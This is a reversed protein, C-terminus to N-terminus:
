GLVINSSAFGKKEWAKEIREKTDTFICLGSRQASDEFWRSFSNRIESDDAECAAIFAPWILRLSGYGMGADSADFRLLCDCVGVVHKQLMGADLDYVTRYFYVVLAHQMTDSLTDLLIVSQEHQLRAREHYANGQDLWRSSSYIGGLSLASTALTGFFACLSANDVDEGLTLAALCSKLHPLYLVHWPTKSHRYPTLGRLVTTACHKLLFVADQPVNNELSLSIPGSSPTSSSCSPSDNPAFRSMQLGSSPPASVPPHQTTSAPGRDTTDWPDVTTDWWEPIELHGAMDLLDVMPMGDLVKLWDSMSCPPTQYGSLRARRGSTTPSSTVLEISPSVFDVHDDKDQALSPEGGPLADGDHHVTSVEEPLALLDSPALPTPNSTVRFAGFPGRSIQIDRTPSTGDCEGDIHSLHWAALAPPVDAVIQQSMCERERETLLPRRFRSVGTTPDDEFDFFIDKTYGGCALGSSKCMSCAPLGEDCKM